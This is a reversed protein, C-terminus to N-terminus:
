IIWGTDFQSITVNSLQIQGGDHNILVSNGGDHLTYSGALVIRDGEAGNFDSISDEAQDGANFVFTDAGAGGVHYDNGRNGFLLDDGWGGSLTDNNQGAFITDNGSDGGIRDDGYNGYILDNGSGGNITEVENQQRMNGYADARPPGSNQGGYLTDNGNGGDILDIDHNGYIIDDGDQGFLLDTGRFGSILDNGAHAQITDRDDTGNIGDAGESGHIASALSNTTKGYLASVLAKDSESLSPDGDQAPYMISNPDTSDALGVVHGVEHTLVEYIKDLDARDSYSLDLYISATGEGRSGLQGDGDPDNFVTRASTESSSDVLKIGVYVFSQDFTSTGYFNFDVGNDWVEFADSITDDLNYYSDNYGQAAMEATSNWNYGGGSGVYYGNYVSM